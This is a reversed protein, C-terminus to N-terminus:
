DIDTEYISKMQWADLSVLEADEGRSSLSVGLSDERGPYVRIAVVQRGNVFVEVVSKDIFVRLHVNENPDLHFSATEPARVEVDPLISSHSSEISILSKRVGRDERVREEGTVL